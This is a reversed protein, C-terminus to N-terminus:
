KVKTLTCAREYFNSCIEKLGCFNLLKRRSGHLGVFTLYGMSTFMSQATGVRKSSRAAFTVKGNKIPVMRFQDVEDEDDSMEIETVGDGGEKIPMDKMDIEMWYGEKQINLIKSLKSTGEEFKVDLKEMARKDSELSDEYDIAEEDGYKGEAGEERNENMPDTQSLRFGEEEV